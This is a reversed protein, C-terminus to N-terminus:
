SRSPLVYKMYFLEIITRQLRFTLCAQGCTPSWDARRRMAQCLLAGMCLWRDRRPSRWPSVKGLCSRLPCPRLVSPLRRRRRLIAPLAPALLCARPERASASSTCVHIYVFPNPLLRSRFVVFSVFTVTSSPSSFNVDHEGSRAREGFGGNRAMALSVISGATSALAAERLTKSLAPFDTEKPEIKASCFVMTTKM